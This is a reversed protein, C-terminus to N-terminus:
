DLRRTPPLGHSDHEVPRTDKAPYHKEKSKQRTRKPKNYWNTLDGM